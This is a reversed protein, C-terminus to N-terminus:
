VSVIVENKGNLRYSDSAFYGQQKQNLTQEKKPCYVKGLM